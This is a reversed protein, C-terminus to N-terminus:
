RPVGPEPRCRFEVHRGEAQKKGSIDLCRVEQGGRECRLHGVPSAAADDIYAAHCALDAHGTAGGVAGGLRRKIRFATTQVQLLSAMDAERAAVTGVRNRSAPSGRNAYRRKPVGAPVGSTKVWCKMPLRSGAMASASAAPRSIMRNSLTPTPLLVPVAGLVTSPMAAPAALKMSPRPKDVTSM